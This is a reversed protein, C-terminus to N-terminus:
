LTVVPLVPAPKVGIMLDVIPYVRPNVDQVKKATMLMLNAIANNSRSGDSHRVGCQPWVGYTMLWALRHGYYLTKSLKVVHYGSQMLCGAQKGRVKPSVAKTNKFTFKGTIPNYDLKMLAETRLTFTKESTMHKIKTDRM